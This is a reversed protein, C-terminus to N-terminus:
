TLIGLLGRARASTAIDGQRAAACHGPFTHELEHGIWRLAMLQWNYLKLDVLASQAAVKEMSSRAAISGEAVGVIWCLSSITIDPENFVVAAAFRDVGLALTHGYTKDWSM